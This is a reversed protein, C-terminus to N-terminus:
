EDRTLRNWEAETLRWGTRRSGKYRPEVRDEDQLKDLILRHIRGPSKGPPTKKMYIGMEKGIEVAPTYVHRGKERANKLLVHIVANELLAIAQDTLQKALNM